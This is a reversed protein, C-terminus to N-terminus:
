GKNCLTEAIKRMKPMKFRNGHVVLGIKKFKDNCALRDSNTGDSYGANRLANRNPFVMSHRDNNTDILHDEKGGFSFVITFNKPIDNRSKFFSVMKTYCYFKIDPCNNMVSKAINWHYENMFDGADHWRLARINKKSKIEKILQDTFGIGDNMMFNLNRSHKVMSNSFIYGGNSAYCFAKCVGANPCTIQKTLNGKNLYYGQIAPFTINYIGDKRLKSNSSIIQNPYQSIEKRFKKINFVSNRLM